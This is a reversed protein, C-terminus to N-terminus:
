KTLGCPYNWPLYWAAMQWSHAEQHLDVGLALSQWLIQSAAPQKQLSHFLAIMILIMESVEERQM